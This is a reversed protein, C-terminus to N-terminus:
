TVTSWGTSLGTLNVDGGNTVLDNTDLFVWLHDNADDDAGAIREVVWGGAITGANISAYAAPNDNTIKAQDGADDETVANNALTKRAYGTGALEDVTVQSPTNLDAAVAASAPPTDVLLLRLTKGTVGGTALRAKGRNTWHSAM